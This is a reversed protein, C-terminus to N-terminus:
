EDSVPAWLLTVCKDGGAAYFDKILSVQGNETGTQRNGGGKSEPSDSHVDNACGSFILLLIFFASFFKNVM